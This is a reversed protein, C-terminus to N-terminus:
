RQHADAPEGYPQHRAQGAIREVAHLAEGGVPVGVVEGARDNTADGATHPRDVQHVVRQQQGQERCRQHQDATSQQKPQCQSDIPRITAM